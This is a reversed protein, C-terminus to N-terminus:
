QRAATVAPPWAAARHSSTTPPGKLWVAPGGNPLNPVDSEAPLFAWEERMMEQAMPAPVGQQILSSEAGATRDAAYEVATEFLNASELAKVMRPRHERWHAEIARYFPDKMPRM